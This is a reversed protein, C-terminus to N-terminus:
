KTITVAVFKVCLNCKYNKKFIPKEQVKLRTISMSMSEKKVFRIVSKGTRTPM